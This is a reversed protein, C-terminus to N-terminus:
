PGSEKGRTTNWPSQWPTHAGGDNARVRSDAERTTHQQQKLVLVLPGMWYDGATATGTGSWPEIEKHKRPTWGLPWWWLTPTVGQTHCRTLVPRNGLSRPGRTHWATEESPCQQGGPGASLDERLAKAKGCFVLLGVGPIVGWVQHYGPLLCPSHTVGLAWLAGRRVRLRQPPYGTSLTQKSGVALRPDPYPCLRHLRCGQHPEPEAWTGLFVIKGGGPRRLLEPCM